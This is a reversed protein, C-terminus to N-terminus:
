EYPKILEKDSIQHLYKVYFFKFYKTWYKGYIARGYDEVLCYDYKSRTKIYNRVVENFRGRCDLILCYNLIYKKAYNKATKEDFYKYLLNAKEFMWHVRKIEQPDEDSIRSGQSEHFRYYNTSNFCFFAKKAYKCIRFALDLDIGNAIPATVGYNEFFSRKVAYASSALPFSIFQHNIAFECSKKKSPWYWDWGYPSINDNDNGIVAKTKFLFFDYDDYIKLKIENFFFKDVFDDDSLFYIYKGEAHNVANFWSADATVLENNNRFYKINLNAYKKIEFEIDIESRNDYVVIEYENNKLKAEQIADNLKKLNFRFFEKKEIRCYTPIVISILCSNKKPEIKKLEFNNIRKDKSVDRQIIVSRRNYIYRLYFICFLKILYKLKIINIFVKISYKIPSKILNKLKLNYKVNMKM